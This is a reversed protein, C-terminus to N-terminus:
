DSRDFHDFGMTGGEPLSGHEFSIGAEDCVIGIHSYGCSWAAAVEQFEGIRAEPVAFCLEYDDGAGLALRLRADTDQICRQLSRSVPIADLELRAGVGSAELIHGLDALLGDSVDIAASAIGSLSIGETVRPEPYDLRTRLWDADEPECDLQKQVIALGAGADGLTGTVFLHDGPRAGGRTLAAGRAVVGQLQVVVQLPGRVTDGGVLEVGYADALAYFGDAFSKVFVEDAEPLTLALTAWAPEAGMAALDSLNVALAKHGIAHPDTEFPFHRGAVLADVCVALETDPPPRVLAADDGVGLTVDNRQQRRTFYQAILEFESLAM